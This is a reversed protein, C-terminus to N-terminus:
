LFMPKQFEKDLPSDTQAEDDVLQADTQAMAENQDVGVQVGSDASHTHASTQVATSALESSEAQSWKDHVKVSTQAEKDKMELREHQVGTTKTPRPDTGVAIDVVRPRPRMMQALRQIVADPNRLLDSMADEHQMRTIEQDRAQALPFEVNAEQKTLAQGDRYM